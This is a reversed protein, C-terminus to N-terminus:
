SCMSMVYMKGTLGSAMVMAVCCESVTVNRNLIVEVVEGTSVGPRDSSVVCQLSVQFTCLAFHISYMM